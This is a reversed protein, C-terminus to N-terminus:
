GDLGMRRRAIRALDEAFTLLEGATMPVYEVRGMHLNVGTPTHEVDIEEHVAAIEDTM